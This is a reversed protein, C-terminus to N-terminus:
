LNSRALPQRSHAVAQTNRALEATHGEPAQTSRAPRVPSNCDGVARRRDVVAVAPRSDDPVPRSHVAEVQKSCLLPVFAGHDGGRDDPLPGRRNIRNFRCQNM